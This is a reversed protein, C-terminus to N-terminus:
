DPGAVETIETAVFKLRCDRVLELRGIGYWGFAPDPQYSCTLAEPDDYHGTIRVWQQPTPLPLTSPHAVADGCGGFEEVVPTLVLGSTAWPGSLWEPVFTGPFFGGCGGPETRWATFTIPADGFCVVAIEPPIAKFALFTTPLAPCAGALPREVRRIGAPVSGQWAVGDESWWLVPNLGALTVDAGLTLFGRSGGVAVPGDWTDFPLVGGFSDSVAATWSEGDLSVWAGAQRPEGATWGLAVVRTGDSVLANLMAGGMVSEAAANREWSLTATAQSIADPLDALWIRTAGRDDTATAVLRGQTAALMVNSGTPVPATGGATADFWTAGDPSIGVWMRNFRDEGWYMFGAGVAAINNARNGRLYVATWAEGDPSFYSKHSLGSPTSDIVTLLYGSATGVLQSPRGEDLPWGVMPTWTQGDASRRSTALESDTPDAAIALWGNPGWAIHASELFLGQPPDFRKWERGDGSVLFVPTAPRNAGLVADYGWAIFGPEGAVVDVIWGPRDLQAAGQSPSPAVSESASPSADPSLSPSPSASETASPKASSSPEAMLGGIFSMGLWTAAIGILGVLGIILAAFARPYAVPGRSEAQM